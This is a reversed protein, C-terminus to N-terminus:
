RFYIFNIDKNGESRIPRIAVLRVKDLMFERPHVESDFLFSVSLYKCHKHCCILIMGGVAEPMEKARIACCICGEVSGEIM